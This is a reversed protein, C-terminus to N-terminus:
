EAPACGCPQRRYRFCRGGHCEWVVLQNIVERKTSVAFFDPVKCLSAMRAQRLKWREHLIIVVVICVFEISHLAQSCDRCLNKHLCVLYRLRFSAVSILRLLRPCIDLRPIRQVKRRVQEEIRACQWSHTFKILLM